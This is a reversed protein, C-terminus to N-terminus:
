KVALALVWALVWTSVELDCVFSVIEYHGPGKNLHRYSGPFPHIQMVSLLFRDLSWLTKWNRAWKAITNHNPTLMCHQSAVSM